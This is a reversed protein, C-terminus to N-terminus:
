PSLRQRRGLASPPVYRTGSSERRSSALACLARIGSRCKRSDDTMCLEGSRTMSSEGGRAVRPPAVHCPVFWTFIRLEVKLGNVQLLAEHDPFIAPPLNATQMLVLVHRDGLDGPPQIEIALGDAAAQPTFGPLGVLPRRARVCQESLVGLEQALSRGPHAIRSLDQPLLQSLAAERAAVLRHLPEHPWQAGGLRQGFACAHPELGRGAMLALDVPAGSPHVEAVLGHQQVKEHQRQAIASPVVHLRRQVLAHRLEEIRVLAREIVETAVRALVQVVARARDAAGVALATHHPVGRKLTECAVPAELRSQTSGIPRPGLALDLRAHLVELAVEERAAREDVQLIRALLPRQPVGGNGVYAHVAGCVLHRDFAEGVFRGLQHRARCPGAELELRAEHPDNGVVEEDAEVRVPVRHRERQDAMRHLDLAAVSLHPDVAAALQDGRV